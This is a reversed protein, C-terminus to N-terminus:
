LVERFTTLNCQIGHCTPIGPCVEVNDKSLITNSLAVQNRHMQYVESALSILSTVVIVSAYYVYNDSFWLVM